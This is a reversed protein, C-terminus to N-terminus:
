NLSALKLSRYVELASPNYNPPWPHGRLAQLSRIWCKTRLGAHCASQGNFGRALRGKGNM